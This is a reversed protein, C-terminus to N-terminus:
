SMLCTASMEVAHGGISPSVPKRLSGGTLRSLTGMELLLSGCAAVNTETIHRSHEM